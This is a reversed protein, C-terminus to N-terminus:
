GKGHGRGKGEGRSKDNRAALKRKLEQVEAELKRVKATAQQDGAPAGRKKGRSSAPEGGGGAPRSDSQRGQLCTLCARFDDHGIVKDVIADLPRVGPGGARLSCGLLQDAIQTLQLDACFIHEWTVKAHGVMPVKSRARQFLMKLKEGLMFDMAGGADFALARRYVAQYVAYDSALSTEIGETEQHVSLRHQADLTIKPVTKVLHIEQERTTCESLPIHKRRGKEVMQVVKTILSDSPCNDGELILHPFKNALSERRAALEVDPLLRGHEPPQTFRSAIEVAALANAEAHLRVM